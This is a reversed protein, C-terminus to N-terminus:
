KVVRTAAAQLCLPLASMGSSCWGVWRGVWWGVVSQRCMCGALLLFPVLWRCGNCSSCGSLWGGVSRGVSRGSCFQGHASVPSPCISFSSRSKRSIGHMLLSIWQVFWAVAVPHSASPRLHVASVHDLGASVTQVWPRSNGQESFRLHLGQCRVKTGYGCSGEVAPRSM